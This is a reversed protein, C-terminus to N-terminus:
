HFGTRIAPNNKNINSALPQNGCLRINNEFAQVLSRRKFDHKVLIRVGCFLATVLGRYTQLKPSFFRSLNFHGSKSGLLQSRLVAAPPNSFTGVSDVYNWYHWLWNPHWNVPSIPRTSSIMKLDLISDLWHTPLNRSGKKPTSWTSSMKWTCTGRQRAHCQFGSAAPQKSPLKTSTGLFLPTKVGWIKWKLLTKQIIKVMWKPPYIGRNKPQCGNSAPSKQELRRQGM